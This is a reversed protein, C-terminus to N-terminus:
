LWCQNQCTPRLEIGQTDLSSTFRHALRYSAAWRTVLHPGPQQLMRGFREQPVPVAPDLDDVDRGGRSEGLAGHIGVEAALRPQETGDPRFPELRDGAEREAPRLQDAGPPRPRLDEALDGPLEGGFQGPRRAPGGRQALEPQQGYAIRLDGPGVGFQGGALQVPQGTLQALVGVRDSQGGVKSWAVAAWRIRVETVPRARSCAAAGSTM